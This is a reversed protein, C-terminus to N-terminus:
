DDVTVIWPKGRIFFRIAYIGSNNITQTLFVSKALDPFETLAAMSALIYCTGSYGQNVDSWKPVNDSGFLTATPFQESLREFTYSYSWYDFLEGWGAWPLKFYTDKGKFDHDTYVRGGAIVQNWDEPGKKLRDVTATCSLDWGTGRKEVKPTLSSEISSLTNLRAETLEIMSGIAYGASLKSLM